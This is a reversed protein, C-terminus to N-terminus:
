PVEVSIRSFGSYIYIYISSFEEINVAIVDDYLPGVFKPAMCCPGSPESAGAAKRYVQSM